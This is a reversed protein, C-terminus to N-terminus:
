EILDFYEFSKQQVHLKDNCNSCSSYTKVNWTEIEM